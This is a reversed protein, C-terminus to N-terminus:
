HGDLCGPQGSSNLYGTGKSYANNSWEGQVKWITGNYFTVYPVNFTWVCKDGNENGGSDYWGGGTPDTRSESLEHASVNALAALGQSHGTQSDGPDCGGDGDLNFVYEFQVVVGNCYTYDHYGCYGAGNRGVDTYVSYFGRGKLDPKKIIKCVEAMVAAEDNGHVAASTDIVHGQYYVAPGVKGNSGTYEGSTKAYNSHGFGKYWSDLGTIKDNVFAPDTWSPGWFISKAVSSTLIPGGNWNMYPPPLTTDPQLHDRAILFRPTGIFGPRGNIPDSQIYALLDEGTETAAGNHDLAYMFYAESIKRSSSLDTADRRNRAQALVPFLAAAVIATTALAVLLDLLTYAGCRRSRRIPATRM